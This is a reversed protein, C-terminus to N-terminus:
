LLSTRSSGEGYLLCAHLLSDCLWGRLILWFGQAELQVGCGSGGLAFGDAVCASGECVVRKSVERFLCRLGWGEGWFLFVFSCTVPSISIFLGGM